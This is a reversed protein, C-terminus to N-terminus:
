KEKVCRPHQIGRRGALKSRIEATLKAIEPSVPPMLHASDRSPDLVFVRDGYVACPKGVLAMAPIRTTREFAEADRFGVQGLAELVGDFRPALIYEEGAAEVTM